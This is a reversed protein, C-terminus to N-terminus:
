SLSFCPPPGPPANLSLQQFLSMYMGPQGANASEPPIIRRTNGSKLTGIVVYGTLIAELKAKPHKDQDLGVVMRMLEQDLVEVEIKHQCIGAVKKTLDNQLAEHAVEAADGLLQQRMQELRVPEM